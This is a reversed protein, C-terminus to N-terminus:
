LIHRKNNADPPSVIGEQEMREMFGAAKNYGIQLRRQIYSITPKKDRLVCEKAQAYLDADKEEARLTYKGTPITVEIIQENNRVRVLVHADIKSVDDFYRNLRALKEKVYQKISDTIEIKDGRININM